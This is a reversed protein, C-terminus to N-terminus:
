TFGPILDEDECGRNGPIRNFYTYPLTEPDFEQTVIM